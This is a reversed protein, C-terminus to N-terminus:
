MPSYSERSTFVPILPAPPSSISKFLVEEPWMRDIDSSDLTLCDIELEPSFDSHGFDRERIMLYGPCTLRIFKNARRKPHIHFAIRQYGGFTGGHITRYIPINRNKWRNISERTLYILVSVLIVGFAFETTSDM